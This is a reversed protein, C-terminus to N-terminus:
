GTLHPCDHNVESVPHTFIGAHLKAPPLHKIFPQESEVPTILSVVSVRPHGADQHGASCEAGMASRLLCHICHTSTRPGHGAESDLKAKALLVRPPGPHFGAMLEVGVGLGPGPPNLVAPLFSQFGSTGM